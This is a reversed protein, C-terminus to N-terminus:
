IHGKKCIDKRIDYVWIESCRKEDDKIGGIIYLKHDIINATHTDRREPMISNDKPIRFIWENEDINKTDISYLDSAAKTQSNSNGGYLYIHGRYMSLTHGWHNHPCTSKRQQQKGQPQHISVEYSVKM